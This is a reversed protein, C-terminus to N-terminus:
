LEEEDFEDDRNQNVKPTLVKEFKEKAEYKSCDTEVLDGLPKYFSLTPDIGIKPDAELRKMLNFFYPRAMQGGQGQAIELFRIWPDEGGVWTGVALSPTIGMFWGDVYDNTTGTKGGFESQMEYSRHKVAYKLMDVIVYNYEENLVRKQEPMATYIVRDNKDVIKTIFIPKKHIGNNAMSAYASTMELVNLDASGLCISPARPIKSKKIGMQSALDRVVEVNGLQKMLWISVSNKSKKLGEKLTLKQGSFKGDSNSPSWADMLGFNADRAPITYQIDDVKQCPSMAQQSIATAYIFPKFTSGVQRDSLVHDYQFRKNGIGGVWTKVHGTAPEISVSGLQLHMRHYKISDLPSMNVMKEGKVHDFVTMNTKRSFEKNAEKELSSWAMKLDPWSKSKLIKEYRSKQARSIYDQGLLELLYKSDSEGKLMRQIDADWLRADPFAKLIEQFVGNMKRNKMRKFRDSEFILRKLAKQRISKQNEDAEYTWPDLGKWRNFYKTQQDIMHETMAAEAHKQMNLDITTYIKLGDEYINYKTGDPKLYKDEQLLKKLYSTLTARFYPAQGEYHVSRNFNTIDIKEKSVKEYESKSIYGNRVMQSLVVNRRHFANEPYKKPNYASPNKLMGILVACESLSLASQKKGFYTTAAAQVGHANYLFDFKNLYMSLIEEKTYGKEFEIAIVWEKLKQWIRKVINSSRQTFFLKALQQSITSAGGKTGLFAVARFTSRLDVGSHEHYREDETAILAEVIKPNLSEFQVAERNFKFYRGLEQMDYSYIISAYEYSPNELEKTDPMKTSSILFFLIGIAILGFITLGWMVRTLKKFFRSTNSM